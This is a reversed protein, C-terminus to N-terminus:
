WDTEMILRVDEMGIEPWSKDFDAGYRCNDNFTNICQAVASKLQRMIYKEGYPETYEYYMYAKKAEPSLEEYEQASLSMDPDIEYDSSEFRYVDNKLFFGCYDPRDLKYDRLDKGDLVYYTRYEQDEGTVPNKYLPFEKQLEESLFSRDLRYWKNSDNVMSYVVSQGWLLPQRKLEGKKTMQFYDISRWVGDLKAELYAFCYVGM